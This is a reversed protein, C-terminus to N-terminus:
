KRWGMLVALEYAAEGAELAEKGIRVFEATTITADSRARSYEIWVDAAETVVKEVAKENEVLMSAGKKIRSWWSM